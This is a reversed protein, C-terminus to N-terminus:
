VTTLLLGLAFSMLMELSKERPCWSVDSHLYLLKIHNYTNSWIRWKQCYSTFTTLTKAVAYCQGNTLDIDVQSSLPNQNYKNLQSHNIRM